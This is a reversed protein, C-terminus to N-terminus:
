KCEPPKGQDQWAKLYQHRIEFERDIWSVVLQLHGVRIHNAQFARCGNEAAKHWFYIDADVRQEDWEGAENPQSWFWPKPIKKLAETKILTLGFHGTHIPTLDAEFEDMTATHRVKGLSDRMTFLMQDDNRKAQLPVIADAEPYLAALTLLEKVDASDFITDYDIVIIWEVKDEILANFGRQMGQEWFAGGFRWLPIEFDKSRLAKWCAGFNDNWGLRPVSMLAAVRAKVELTESPEVQPVVQEPKIGQLNLSVPLSACDKIESQWHRIQTLGAAKLLSELKAETFFAKHFDNEDAQGGFLFGELPLNSEGERHWQLIKDFNPVAVKLNGGPKLVRVWEKLVALTERHSFHELCHSARIEEVSSDAFEPLPYIESGLKRDRNEFGPIKQFGSGLNLKIM